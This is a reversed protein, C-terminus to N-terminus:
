QDLSKNNLELNCIELLNTLTYRLGSNYVCIVSGNALSTALPSNFQEKSCYSWLNNFSMRIQYM